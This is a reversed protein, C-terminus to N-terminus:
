PCVYLWNQHYIVGSHDLVDSILNLFLDGIYVLEFRIFFELEDLIEEPM